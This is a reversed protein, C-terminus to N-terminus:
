SKFAGPSGPSIRYLANSSSRSVRSRYDAVSWQGHLLDFYLAAPTVEPRAPHMLRMDYHVLM